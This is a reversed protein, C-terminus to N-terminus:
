HGEKLNKSIAPPAVLPLSLKTTNEMKDRVIKSFEEAQSEEIEVVLQDHIQAVVLGDIGHEKLARNIEIAARNVISAALSQIQFNMSNNVGNKYDRVMNIVLDEELQSMLWSQFTRDLLKDGFKEYLYSVKPLHRIRGVQNKIYGNRKVFKKSEEMWNRLNPFSDLYGDILVQAAKTSVDISKGLAYAEMGYPIGLSYSKAKTRVQPAANRLYNPDKKNPSYQSLGETRIAITSYFDWNNRFIDKLGEDGSVHAFVRPELSEYDCDIFVKGPKSIFFARILNNYKIIIEEDEGEDIPRPLQQADSGYRGSVTGHQKYYFYYLGDEQNDLFRDMYTSKIKLLKNYIRLLKAWRNNKAISQIFEEDFKSKGADTQALPKFKLAKFAIEGMHTKSQINFYEGDQSKKWLLVSIKTLHEDEIGFPLGTTLYNKIPSDPLKSVNSANILFKGTKESVPLSVKNYELLMQAFNGKHSSPFEKIARSVVWERVEPIKILEEVVEKKYFSLEKTIEERSSQILEMNLEMGNSEMPITVERYLPMVEEEYFLKTLGEEELIPEYHNFIRLTLDTDACAYDSLIKMDAKWIEYNDKTTSGGNAKISAKLALQEENAEKEIDLGLQEQISIAIEKLAFISATGNGAGEECVTHVLLMTDAYISDVLDIGYNSKVIRVDFSLNHGILKKKSLLNITKKALDHCLIGDIYSDRLEGDYVMTPMYYGKGVEGTVSIGIVKGKRTNLSTTETDFSVISHEKIHQIMEILTDESDVTVYKKEQM